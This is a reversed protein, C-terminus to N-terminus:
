NVKLQTKAFEGDSPIKISNKQIESFKSSRYTEAISFSIRSESAEAIIEKERTESESAWLFAKVVFWRLNDEVWQKQYDSQESINSLVSEDTM